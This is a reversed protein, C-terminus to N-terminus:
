GRGRTIGLSPGLVTHSHGYTTEGELGPGVLPLRAKKAIASRGPSRGALDMSCCRRFAQGRYTWNQEGQLVAAVQTLVAILAFKSM